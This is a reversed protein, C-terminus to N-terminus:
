PLVGNIYTFTSALKTGFGAVSSFIVVAILAGMLAYELATVGKSDAKFTGLLLCYSRLLVPSSRGSVWM